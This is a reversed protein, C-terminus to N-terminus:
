GGALPLFEIAQPALIPDQAFFALDQCFGRGPESLLGAHRRLPTRM